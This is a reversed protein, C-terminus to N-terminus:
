QIIKKTPNEENNILSIQNNLDMLQRKSSKIFKSRELISANKSKYKIFLLCTEVTIKTMLQFTESNIMDYNDDDLLIEGDRIEVYFSGLFCRVFYGREKPNLIKDFIIKEDNISYDKGVHFQMECPGFNGYYFVCTVRHGSGYNDYKFKIRNFKEFRFELNELFLSHFLKCTTIVKNWEYLTLNRLILGYIEKPFM